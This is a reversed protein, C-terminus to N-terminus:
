RWGARRLAPAVIAHLVRWAAECVAAWGLRVLSRAAGSAAGLGLFRQAGQPSSEALAVAIHLRMALEGAKGPSHGAAAGPSELLALLPPVALLIRSLGLPRGGRIAEIGRAYRRVLIPAPSTRMIYALLAVGERILTRRAGNGSRAMGSSLDRLEVGIGDLDAQTQMVPLDFLSTLRVLGLRSGLEWGLYRAAMRVAVVPIPVPWRRVRLRDMAVSRLFDSFLIPSPAGVCFVRPGSIGDRVITLLVEALDDVHIPQVRPAPLFAPIVPVSRVASVLVGFLAREPGGYVLGPRVVVGQASLMEQEIRWKTRGYDTPADERAAQSSVFVLQAGARRAARIVRQAGRMEGAPDSVGGQTHAALHIVTAVDPPLDIDGDQDFDFHLWDVDFCRPVSRSLAVVAHGAALANCLLRQGIYGTAGTILFKM